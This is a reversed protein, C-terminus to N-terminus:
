AQKGVSTLPSVIDNGSTGDVRVGDDTGAIAFAALESTALGAADRVTIAFSDSVSAGGGLGNTAARADDLLYALLGSATDLTATGYVGSKSWHTADVATWGAMDFSVADGADPDGRQLAVTANATGATAVAAEVLGNSQPGVVLRPADNTGVIEVDVRTATGDTALVAFRELRREGAALEDHASTAAYSWAGSTDVMFRGLDGTTTGAVFATPSDVDTLTLKGSASLAAATDGEALSVQASSLSAADDTGRIDFAVTASATAGSRDRVAVAFEDRVAAGGALADTAARADDLAYAVTGSALDLAATGYIGSKSWHTADVVTWGSPVFELADGPDADKAQLAVTAGPSGAVASSAEVLGNSQAGASLTPPTNFRTFSGSAWDYLGDAFKLFEINKLKDTGDAASAVTGASRNVTYDAFRGAYAATDVGAGGDITDNGAGGTLTNAAANGTIINALANGTGDIAATGTLTLREVNDSLVFSVSASVTDTGEGAAEVVVDAANDVVYTDDGSGGAMIDAGIGGDLRDNGAEGNLTDDGAGGNLTDNGGGGAITNAAGNGLITNAL